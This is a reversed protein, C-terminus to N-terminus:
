LTYSIIYFPFANNIVKSFAFLQYSSSIIKIFQYKCHVETSQVDPCKHLQKSKSIAHCKGGGQLNLKSHFIVAQRSKYADMTKIFPRCSMLTPLDFVHSLSDSQYMQPGLAGNSYEKVVSSKVALCLYPSFWVFAAILSTFFM